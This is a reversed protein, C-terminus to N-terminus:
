ELSIGGKGYYFPSNPDEHREGCFQYLADPSAHRGYLRDYRRLLTIALGKGLLFITRGRLWFGCDIYNDMSLHEFRSLLYDVTKEYACLWRPHRDKYAKTFESPSDSSWGIVIDLNPCLRALDGLEDLLEEIFPNKIGCGMDLGVYGDPHAWGHAHDYGSNPSPALLDVDPFRLEKRVSEDLIRILRVATEPSVPKGRLSYSSWRGLRDHPLDDPAFCVQVDDADCPPYDNADYGSWGHYASDNYLRLFEALPLTRMPESRTM